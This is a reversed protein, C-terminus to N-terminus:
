ISLINDATAIENLIDEDKNLVLHIFFFLEIKTDDTKLPYITWEHSVSSMYLNIVTQMAKLMAQSHTLKGVTVMELYFNASKQCLRIMQKYSIKELLDMFKKKAEPSEYPSELGRKMMMNNFQLMIDNYLVEHYAQVIIEAPYHMLFYVKANIEARVDDSFTVNVIYIASDPETYTDDCESKDCIIDSYPTIYNNMLMITLQLLWYTNNQQKATLYSWDDSGSTYLLFLLALQEKINLEDFEYKHESTNIHYPNSTTQSIKKLKAKEYQIKCNTCSCKVFYNVKHGCAPCLFNDLEWKKIKDRTPYYANLPINCYECMKDSTILPLLDRLKNASIDLNHKEIIESVKISLDTYENIIEQMEETSIKRM